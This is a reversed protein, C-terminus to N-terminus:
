GVSANWLPRQISAELLKYLVRLRSFFAPLGGTFFRPDVPTEVRREADLVACSCFSSVWGALLLLVSLWLRSKMMQFWGITIAKEEENELQYWFTGFLVLTIHFALFLGERYLILSYAIEDNKESLKESKM